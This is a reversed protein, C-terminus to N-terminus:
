SSPVNPLGNNVMGRLRLFDYLYAVDSLLEDVKGQLNLCQQALGALLRIERDSLKNNMTVAFPDAIVRKLFNDTFTTSNFDRDM